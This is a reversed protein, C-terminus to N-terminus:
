EEAIHETHRALQGSTPYQYETTTEARAKHGAGLEGGCDLYKQEM